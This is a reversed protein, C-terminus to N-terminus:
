AAGSAAAEAVKLGEPSLLTRGQRQAISLLGADQTRAYVSAVGTVLEETDLGKDLIADNIPIFYGGYSSQILTDVAK